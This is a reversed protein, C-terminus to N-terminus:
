WSLGFCSLFSSILSFSAKSYRWTERTMPSNIEHVVSVYTFSLHIFFRSLVMLIAPFTALSTYLLVQVAFSSTESPPAATGTTSDSDTPDADPFLSSMVYILVQM